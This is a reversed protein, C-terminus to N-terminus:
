ASGGSCRTASAGGPGDALSRNTRLRLADACLRQAARGERLSQEDTCYGLGWGPGKTQIFVQALVLLDGPRLYDLIKDFSTHTLDKKTTELVLLRSQDRQAAPQQAINEEPLQYDYAKLQFENNM